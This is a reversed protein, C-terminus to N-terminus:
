KTKRMLHNVKDVVFEIERDNHWPSIPLSLTKKAINEAVPYSTKISQAYGEVEKAALYPYHIDTTIGFKSLQQKFDDRSEVLVCFHHWVSSDLNSNLPKISELNLNKLYFEAIQKRRLNWSVLYKLNINLVSAQIEDLRYNLGFTDHKYKNEPSSGYNSLHKISTALSSDNTVIIGADGFAGLNKTPYLSFVGVDGWAGAYINDQMALHAQSCDEIVLVKLKKAWFTIERMDVMQGHMHVIIIAKFKQESKKLLEINLLGSGDVDISHPHAGVSLVANHVAIFTHAPVAVYDGDGIGLARLALILGDQGNSVGISYKVKLKEAWSLEFNKVEPGQIFIGRNVVNILSKKWQTKLKRPANSFSFFPVNMQM